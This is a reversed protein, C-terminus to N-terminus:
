RASRRGRRRDRRRRDARTTPPQRSRRRGILYGLAAAALGVGVAAYPVWTREERPPPGAAVFVGLGFTDAFLQASAAAVDTDLTEWDQDGLLLMETAHVPFRLIITANEELRAEQGSSAFTAEIRYANGDIRLPPPPDPLGSPDLPTIEVEIEAAADGPPPSFAGQQFTALAQGDGTAVTRSESGEPTFAITGVGSSPEINDPALDPPPDVYNYRPPPALGDYLPAAPLLGTSVTITVAAVYVGLAAAGWGAVRRM